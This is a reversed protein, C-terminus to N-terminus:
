HTKVCTSSSRSSKRGSRPTVSLAQLCYTTKPRLSEIVLEKSCSDTEHVEEEVGNHMLYIRFILKQLKTVRMRGKQGRLPTRPPRIQVTITQGTVTAKIQPPSFSTEWQPYFRHSLVWSSNGEPSLSRVRAYYWERPDSTAQSLDCELKHIGQCHDSNTWEKDGYIKYQVFYKLNKAAKNPHKWRLVNRFDLSHFQVELPAMDDQQSPSCDAWCLLSMALVLDLWQPGTLAFMIFPM